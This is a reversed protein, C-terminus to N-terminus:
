SVPIADYECGSSTTIVGRSARFIGNGDVVVRPNALTLTAFTLWTGTLNQTQINIAEVGTMAAGTVQFVLKLRGGVCNLTEGDLAGTGAALNVTYPM